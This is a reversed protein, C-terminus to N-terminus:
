NRWNKMITIIKTLQELVIGNEKSPYRPPL